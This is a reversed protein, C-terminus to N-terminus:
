TKPSDVQQSPHAKKFAELQVCRNNIKNILPFADLSVEFRAAAFIQPILFCDAATISDGFCYDGSTKELLKELTTLGSSIWLQTWKIKQDSTIKLDKELYNLIKLNHLPQIGSNIIECFQIVEAKKEPGAPFLQPSPLIDELYQIIAMSQGITAVLQSNKYHVLLPVEGSPNLQRYTPSNQEGGNNILHV